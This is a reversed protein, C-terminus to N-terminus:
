DKFEQVKGFIFKKGKRPKFTKPEKVYHGEIELNNFIFRKKYNFINAILKM